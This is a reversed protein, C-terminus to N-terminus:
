NKQIEHEYMMLIKKTESLLRDEFTSSKEDELKEVQLARMLTHILINFKGPNKEEFQKIIEDEINESDLIHIEMESEAMHLKSTSRLLVLAGRKKVHSEIKQFDIDSIKGKELIGYVRVIVIKGTIEKEQLLNIIKETSDLANNTELHISVIDALKIEEKTIRGNDYFYFSGAKLGELESLNNPFTPGSYIRRNKNYVIHLHALALYDVDPLNKEDISKMPIDGIADKLTTHLMLIKFLGPSDQLKIREIDEVELGSKKGPYGYIAINKYITPELIIKRDREEYISVNKCFGAKELVDLFTKGSVSYDHSGAILFVPIEAEKLKKFEGFTDKLTEIPPYASDFLDGAILIFEVKEKICRKLAEQFSKFNLEKLEPQRWGGLHCDGLHAFKM